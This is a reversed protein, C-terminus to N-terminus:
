NMPKQAIGPLGDQGKPKYIKPKCHDNTLSFCSTMIVVGQGGQGPLLEYTIDGLSKNAIVVELLGSNGGKRGNNDLQSINKSTAFTSSEGDGGGEGRMLIHLTGRLGQAEIRIKGGHRGATGVKAKQNVPFTQIMAGESDVMGAIILLNEGNTTLSAGAMFFVRGKTELVRFQDKETNFNLNLQDIKMDGTVIYDEPIEVQLRFTQGNQMVSYEYQGPKEVIDEAQANSISIQALPAQNMLGMPRRTVSSMSADGQITVAYQQPKNLANVKATPQAVETPSNEDKKDPDRVEICSILLLPFTLILIKSRM